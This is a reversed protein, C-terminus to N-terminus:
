KQQISEIYLALNQIKIEVMAPDHNTNRFADGWIPMGRTGHDTIFDNGRIVSTVTASPFKGGNKKSLLALDPPQKKLAPATPGSGKGDIGHCSACYSRFTEQGAITATVPPSEKENKPREQAGAALAFGLTGALGAILFTFQKATM